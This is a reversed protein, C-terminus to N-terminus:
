ELLNHEVDCKGNLETRLLTIKEKKFINKIDKDYKDWYSIHCGADKPTVFVLNGTLDRRIVELAIDFQNTQVLVVSRHLKTFIREYVVVNM